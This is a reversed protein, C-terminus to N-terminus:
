RGERYAAFSSYLATDTALRLAFDRRLTTQNIIERDPDNYRVDDKLFDDKNQYYYGVGLSTAFVGFHIAGTTYDKQLVQGLGPLLVSSLGAIAPPPDARAIVPSLGLLCAIAASIWRASRMTAEAAAHARLPLIRPRLEGDAHGDGGGCAQGM